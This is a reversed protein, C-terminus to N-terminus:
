SWHVRRGLRSSSVTHSIVLVLGCGGGEGPFALLRALCDFNILRREGNLAVQDVVEEMQRGGEPEVLLSGMAEAIAEGEGQPPAYVFRRRPLRMWELVPEDEEELNYSEVRCGLAPHRARLKAWALPLRALFAEAAGEASGTEPKLTLQLFTDSQGLDQSALDFKNEVLGLQRSYSPTPSRSLHWDHQPRFAATLNLAPAHTTSRAM